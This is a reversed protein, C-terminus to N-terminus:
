RHNVFKYHYLEKDVVVETKILKSEHLRSAYNYDEGVYMDPYGIQIAISKRTPSLHNNYRAYYEKGSADYMACYSLDKSIFWVKDDKGNTTMRGQLGVADPNSKLAKMVEEVYCDAIEDDDDVFVVWEGKAEHILENRKKGTSKERNDISVCIEVKDEAGCEKIQGELKRLLMALMGARENISPILVSLIM